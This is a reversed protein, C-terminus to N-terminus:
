LKDSDTNEPVEDTDDTKDDTNETAPESLESQEAPVPDVENPRGPVVEPAQGTDDRKVENVSPQVQDTEPEDVSNPDAIIGEKLLGAAVDEPMDVLSGAKYLEGDHKLPSKVKYQM